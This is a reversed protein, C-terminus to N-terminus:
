GTHRENGQNSERGVGGEKVRDAASVDCDVAESGFEEEAVWRLRQRNGEAM